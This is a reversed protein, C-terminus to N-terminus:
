MLGNRRRLFIEFGFCAAIWLLLWGTDWAPDWVAKNLDVPKRKPELKKVLEEFDSEQVMGGGSDESLERLFDPDASFTDAESPPPLVRLASCPGL